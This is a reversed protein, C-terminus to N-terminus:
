ELNMFFPDHVPCVTKVLFSFIIKFIQLSSTRAFSWPDVELTWPVECGDSVGIGPSRLGEEPRWQCCVHMHFVSMCVPFTSIHMFLIFLNVKQQFYFLCTFCKSAFFEVLGSATAVM